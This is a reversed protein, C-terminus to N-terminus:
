VIVKFPMNTIFNPELNFVHQYSQRLITKRKGGATEKPSQLIWVPYYIFPWSFTCNMSWKSNSWMPDGVSNGVEQSLYTIEAVRRVVLPPIDPLIISVHCNDGTRLLFPGVTARIFPPSLVSGYVSPLSVSGPVARRCSFYPSAEAWVVQVLSVLTHQLPIFVKQRSFDWCHQWSM